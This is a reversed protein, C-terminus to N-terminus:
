KLKKKNSAKRENIAHVRLAADFAIEAWHKALELDDFIEDPAAYYSMKILKKNSPYEFAELGQGEFLHVNDIDTKLYLQDDFVLAFMLGQYYIGQAGFMKRSTIPGFYEFVEHLHEVFESM